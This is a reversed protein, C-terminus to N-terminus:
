RQATLTHCPAPAALGGDDLFDSLEELVERYLHSRTEEPTEALAAALPSGAVAGEIFTIPDPHRAFKYDFGVHIDRFGAAAALRRLAERDGLSYMVQWAATADDGFHRDFVTAFAAGLPSRKKWVSLAVRGGRKLVRAMEHLAAAPDPTFQLGQQCLAVDFAEDAFPMSGADCQVWEIKDLGATDAFGAAAALMPANVDAGTVQASSRTRRAATRAVVGTGCAVDLVLDDPGIRAADVLEMAARGMQAAVLVSEYVEPGSHRLQFESIEPM